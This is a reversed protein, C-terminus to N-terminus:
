CSDFLRGDRNCGKKALYHVHRDRSHPTQPATSPSSCVWAYYNIIVQLITDTITVPASLQCLKKLNCASRRLGVQTPDALLLNSSQVSSDSHDEFLHVAPGRAAGPPLGGRSPRFPLYWYKKELIWIKGIYVKGGTHVINKRGTSIKWILYVKKGIFDDGGMGKLACGRERTEETFTCETCTWQHTDSGRFRWMRCSFSRWNRYFFRKRHFDISIQKRIEADM